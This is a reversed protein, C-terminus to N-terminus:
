RPIQICIVPTPKVIIKYKGSKHNTNGITKATNRLKQNAWPISITRQPVM